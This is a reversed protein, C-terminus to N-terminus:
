ARLMPTRGGHETGPQFILVILRAGPASMPQAACMTVWGRGHQPHHLPRIDGDPHIYAVGQEYLPGTVPDAMVDAEIARLVRDRPRAALATRLQPLVFPAWDTDWNQLTTRAAPDLLMWRLTNEPPTGSPFLADFAKNHAVLQWSCDTVYAMHSIGDVAEQWAGPVEKGSRPYLPAPPDSARAYRCLSVWEQEDLRFLRAVDALLDFPPNTYTGTELRHYVGAARNILQDVQTQSLGRARRGQRGPTRVFGMTEADIRERRAKLLAKLATKNTM